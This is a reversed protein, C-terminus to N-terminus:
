YDRGQTRSRPTETHDPWKRVVRADSERAPRRGPQRKASELSRRRGQQRNRWPAAAQDRHQGHEEANHRRREDRDSQISQQSVGHRAADVLDANMHRKARRTAIHNPHHAGPNTESTSTVKASPMPDLVATNETTL